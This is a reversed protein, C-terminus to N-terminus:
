SFTCSASFKGTISILENQSHTMNLLVENQFFNLVINFCIEPTKMEINIKNLM